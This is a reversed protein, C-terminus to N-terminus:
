KMESLQKLLDEVGEIASFRIMANVDKDPLNSFRISVNIGSYVKALSKELPSAKSDESKIDSRIAAVMDDAFKQYVESPKGKIRMEVKIEKGWEFGVVVHGTAQSALSAVSALLKQESPDTVDAQDGLINAIKSLPETLAMVMTKHGSNAAEWEGAWAPKGVPTKIADIMKKINEESELVVTREDPIYVYVKTNSPLLMPLEATAELYDVGSHKKTKVSSSFTEFIKKWNMAKKAKLFSLSSSLSRNPRPKSKDHTLTVHGGIQELDNLDFALSKDKSSLAGKLAVNLMSIQTKMSSSDALETINVAYVGIHNPSGGAMLYKYELKVENNEAFKVPVIPDAFVPTKNAQVVLGAVSLVGVGLLAPWRRNKPQRDDTIRLMAIRRFLTKTPGLLSPMTGVAPVDSKLALSALSRWYIDRDKFCGAALADAALEQCLEQRRGLWYVLPHYGHVFRALRALRRTMYDRRAVHALEHALASRLEDESWERWLPSLLICPKRVGATAAGAIHRSEGLTVEERLGLEGCLGRAIDVATGNTLPRAQAVIRRIAIAEILFKFLGFGILLGFGLSLWRGIRPSPEEIVPASVKLAAFVSRLEFTPAGGEPGNSVSPLNSDVVASEDIRIPEVTRSPWTPRPLLALATLVFSGLVAATLVSSAVKPSRRYSLLLGGLLPFTLQVALVLLTQGFDSM